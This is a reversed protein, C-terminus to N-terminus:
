LQNRVANDRLNKTVEKKFKEYEDMDKGPDPAYVSMVM